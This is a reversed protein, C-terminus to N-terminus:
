EHLKAFEDMFTILKKIGEIPMANYVSARMGGVTRHGKLNFLGEEEASQIFKKELDDRALIFPINMWSRYPKSVPNSYFSSQDLYNYLLSSKEKNFKAMMELGGQDLIWDFVLGSVYWSFVPSTNLMSAEKAHASYEFMPLLDKNAEFLLNNKVILITLGAIGLNKQAGAFILDYQKVDIPRSAITSSMDCIIPSNTEISDHIELGHITENACYFFYDAFDTFNWTKREAVNTFNNSSSDSVINVKAVKSAYLSAKKSWAGTVLYDLVGNRSFNMPILGFQNTAGGQLFLVSYDDTIKLLNRLSSESSKAFEKFAHSRHSVEVISMGRHFDDLGIHIKEIVSKPILAPGASFNFIDQPM